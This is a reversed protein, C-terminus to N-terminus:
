LKRGYGCSGAADVAEQRMWLKRGGGYGEVAELSGVAESAKSRRWSDGSIQGGEMVPLSVPISSSLTTSPYSSLHLLSDLDPFSRSHILTTARLPFSHLTTDVFYIYM